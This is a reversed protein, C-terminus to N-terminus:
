THGVGARMSFAGYRERRCPPSVTSPQDRAPDLSSAIGSSRIPKSRPAMGHSKVETPVQNTVWPWMSWRIARGPRTARRPISLNGGGTEMHRGLNCSTRLRIVAQFASSPPWCVHSHDAHVGAVPDRQGVVVRDTRERGGVRDRAPPIDDPFPPM